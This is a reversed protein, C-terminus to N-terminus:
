MVASGFQNLHINIEVLDLRTVAVSKNDGANIFKDLVKDFTKLAQTYKDDLFYLYALSYEAKDAALDM